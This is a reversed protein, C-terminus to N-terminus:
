SAKRMERQTRQLFRVQDASVPPPAVPPTEAPRHFYARLERIQAASMRPQRGVRHHAVVGAACAKQIRWKKVNIRAAAEDLTYLKLDEDQDTDTLMPNEQDPTTRNLYAAVASPAVLTARGATRNETHIQGSRILRGVTYISTQLANAVQKVTLGSEDGESWERHGITSSQRGSDPKAM